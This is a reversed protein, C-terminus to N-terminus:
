DIVNNNCLVGGNRAKKTNNKLEAVVNKHRKFNSFYENELYSYSGQQIAMHNAWNKRHVVEIADLVVLRLEGDFFYLKIVDEITSGDKFEISESEETTVKFPKQYAQLRYYPIFNLYNEAYNDDDIVMERKKLIEIQEHISTPPKQFKM